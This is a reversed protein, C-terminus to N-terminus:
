NLPADSEVSFLRTRIGLDAILKVRFLDIIADIPIFHPM